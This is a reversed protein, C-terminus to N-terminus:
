RLMSAGMLGFIVKNAYAEITIRCLEAEPKLNLKVLHAETDM